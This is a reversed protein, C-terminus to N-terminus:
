ATPTTDFSLLRNTRGLVQKNQQQKRESVLLKHETTIVEYKTTSLQIKWQVSHTVM